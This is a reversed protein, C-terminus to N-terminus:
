SRRVAYKKTQAAILKLAWARPLPSILATTLRNFLGPVVRPQRGLASLAADVVAEPAMVPPFASTQVQTYTPTATPGAACVVVDVGRPALEAWLSEGFGVAFAKSGAYAASHPAGILGAVSSMLVVGGRGRQVMQRAFHHTLLLPARVNVALSREVEGQELEVFGSILSLAASCVLLGVERGELARQVEDVLDESALDLSVTHVQVASLERALADLPEPRRALLVLNVGRQALARAFAAGIGESAGAILAWPGYREAFSM